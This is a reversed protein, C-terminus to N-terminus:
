LCYGVRRGAINPKRGAIVALASFIIAVGTMPNNLIEDGSVVRKWRISM